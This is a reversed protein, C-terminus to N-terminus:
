PAVQCPQLAVVDHGKLEDLVRIVGFCFRNDEVDGVPAKKDDVTALEGVATIQVRPRAAEDGAVVVAAVVVSDRIDAAPPLKRTALVDSAEADAEDRRILDRVVRLDPGRPDLQRKVRFFSLPEDLWELLGFAGREEQRPRVVGIGFSSKRKPHRVDAGSVDILEDVIKLLDKALAQQEEPMDPRRFHPSVAFQQQGTVQVTTIPRVQDDTEARTALDLLPVDQPGINRLSSRPQIGRMGAKLRETAAGLDADPQPDIGLGQGLSHKVREQGGLLRGSQRHVDIRVEKWLGISLRDDKSPVLVLLRPVLHEDIGGSGFKGSVRLAQQLHESVDLEPLDQRPRKLQRLWRVVRSAELSEPFSQLDSSGLCLNGQGLVTTNLTGAPDEQRAAWQCAMLRLRQQLDTSPQDGFIQPRELGRYVLQARWDEREVTQHGQKLLRHRLLDQALHLDFRFPQLAEVTRKPAHDVIQQRIGRVLGLWSGLWEAIAPMGKTTVSSRYATVILWDKTAGAASSAPRPDSRQQWPQRNCRMVDESEWLNRSQDSLKLETRDDIV